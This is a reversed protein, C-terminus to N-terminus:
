SLAEAADVLDLLADKEGEKLPNCTSDLLANAASVIDEFELVDECKIVPSGGVNRDYVKDCNYIQSLGEIDLFVLANEDFNQLYEILEKVTMM